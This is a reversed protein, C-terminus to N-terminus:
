REPNATILHGNIFWPSKMVVFIEFIVFIVFNGIM